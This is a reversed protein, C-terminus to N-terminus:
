KFISNLCNRFFFILLSKNFYILTFFPDFVLKPEPNCYQKILLRRWNLSTIQDRKILNWSRYLHFSLCDAGINMYFQDYFHVANRLYNTTDKIARYYQLMKLSHSKQGEMYNKGWTTRTFNAASNARAMSKAAIASAMTNGIIRNNIATRVEFPEHKYISDIIKRNTYALKYTRGDALPGAKMIFLVQKYDALDAISLFDVYKEILDANATFGAKMRKNIYAKLFDAKYVGAKYENDFDVLSKEKSAYLAQEATAILKQPFSLSAIENFMLGGKSDLFIFSPFNTINYLKIIKGSATDARDIKFNVFNTNFM